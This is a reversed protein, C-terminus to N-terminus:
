AATRRSHPRKLRQVLMSITLDPQTAVLLHVHDSDGSFEVLEVALAACVARMTRKGITLMAGTAFTAPV